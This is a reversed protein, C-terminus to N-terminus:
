ASLPAPVPRQYPPGGPGCWRDVGTEVDPRGNLGLEARVTELPQRVRPWFDWAPDILSSNAGAGRAYAAYFREPPFQGLAPAAGPELAFGLQCHLMGGVWYDVWADGSVGTEFASVLLEGTHTTDFGGVVHAVDHVAVLSLPFGSRMGPMPFANDRYYGRLSAGFSGAPADDLARYRAFGSRDPRIRLALTRGLASFMSTGFRNRLIRSTIRLRPGLARGRGIAVLDAVIPHSLGAAELIAAFTEIRRPDLPADVVMALGLHHLHEAVVEAPPMADRSLGTLAHRDLAVGLVTRAYAIGTRAAIQSLPSRGDATAIRVWLGLLDRSSPPEAGDNPSM